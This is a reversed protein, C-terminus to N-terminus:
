PLTAPPEGQPGLGSWLSPFPRGAGRVEGEQGWGATSSGVNWPESKSTSPTPMLFALFCIGAIGLM